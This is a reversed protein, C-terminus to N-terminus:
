LELLQPRFRIEEPDIGGWLHPFGIGMPQNSSRTPSM